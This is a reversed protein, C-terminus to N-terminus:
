KIDRLLDANSTTSDDTIYYTELNAELITTESDLIKEQADATNTEVNKSFSNLLESAGSDEMTESNIDSDQMPVSKNDDDDNESDDYSNSTNTTDSSKSSKSTSDSNDDDDNHHYPKAPRLRRVDHSYQAVLKPNTKVAETYEEISSFHNEEDSAVAEDNDNKDNNTNKKDSVKTDIIPNNVTQTTQQVFAISKIGIGDEDAVPLGADDNHSSSSRNDTLETEQHNEPATNTFSPSSINNDNAPLQLNIIPHGDSQTVSCQSYGVLFNSDLSENTNPAENRPFSTM